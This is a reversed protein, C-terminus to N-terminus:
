FESSQFENSDGVIGKLMINFAISIRNSTTTNVPVMHQLWSPFMIMRNTNSNYQWLSSNIWDFEEVDPSMVNSQPRPDYFQIGSANDAVVYYVGSLINNSHTHPRHMEGPKLINAWMDTVIFSKYKWKLTKMYREANVLVSDYLAKYKKETHLKPHSQWNEQRGEKGKFLIDKHMSDVYEQELVNDAIQINTPFINEMKIQM